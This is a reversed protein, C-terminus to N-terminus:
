TILRYIAEATLAVLGFMLHAMVKKAGKVRVTSGGFNDKLNSNVREASSRQNYRLKQAPAFEVKEGTRKNSDIIPVHNLRTSMERICKSDYASDMLDYLNTVRQASLQALPISAQSDHVSASSIVASVPIDGDVTDIHLKYGIWSYSNGKSDRKTGWDCVAPIDLLNEELTRTLQIEMKTPEKPQPEEGKAPRGKKRKVVDSPTTTKKVPKERAEIATADRSIHGILTSGCLTKVLTEHLTTPLQTHAFEAFARSFTSESPVEWKGSWGCLHRLTADRLLHECLITTTPFNYVSKAIFARAIPIRQALPRGTLAGVSPLHKELSLLECIRVFRQERDTLTGLAEELAPFLRTQIANFFSSLHLTM